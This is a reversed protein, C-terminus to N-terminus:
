GGGGLGWRGYAGFGGTWLNAGASGVGPLLNSLAGWTSTGPHNTVGPDFSAGVWSVSHASPSRMQMSSEGMGCRWQGAWPEVLVLPQLGRPRWFLLLSHCCRRSRHGRHGGRGRRTKKGVDFTELHQM